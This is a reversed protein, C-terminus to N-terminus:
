TKPRALRYFGFENKLERALGELDPFLSSETIGCEIIAEKILRSKSDKFELRAIHLERKNSNLALLGNKEKGHVTFCSKQVRLRDDIYPPVICIPLMPLTDGDKLYENAKKDVQEQRQTDTYLLLSVGVSQENLWYPDMIWVSPTQIDSIDRFAFYLGILSGETWDLLRTPLGYHQMLHYWEWDSYERRVQSFYSKARLVFSDFIGNADDASYEWYDWLGDRYISPIPEFSSRSVGRFWLVSTNWKESLAKIHALYVSISDIPKNNVSIGDSIRFLGKNTTM